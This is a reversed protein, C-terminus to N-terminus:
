QTTTNVPLDFDWVRPYEIKDKQHHCLEVWGDKTPASIQVLGGHRGDYCVCEVQLKHTAFDLWVQSLQQAGSAVRLTPRRDPRESWHEFVRQLQRSSEASFDIWCKGDGMEVVKGAHSMLHWRWLKDDGM